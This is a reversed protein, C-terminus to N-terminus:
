RVDIHLSNLGNDYVKKYGKSVLFSEQRKGYGGGETSLSEICVVTPRYKEWNNSKLVAMDHGETDISVFDIQRGGLHKDLVNELTDVQINLEKELKFGWATNRAVFEKSFTYSATELFKYATITGEKDSIGINLNVDEPRLLNFKEIRKPNPEVNIGRWGRLYFRKTNSLRNPDFAGVDIYFGQPKKGLLKDIIVDEGYQSFSEKFPQYYFKKLLTGRILLLSRKLGYKDIKEYIAKIV